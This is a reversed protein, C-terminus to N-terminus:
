VSCQNCFRKDAFTEQEPRPIPSPFINVTQLRVLSTLFLAALIFNVILIIGLPNEEEYVLKTVEMQKYSERNTVTVTEYPEVWVPLVFSVFIIAQYLALFTSMCLCAGM